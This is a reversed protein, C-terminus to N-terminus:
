GQSICVSRSFIVELGKPHIAPELCSPLGLSGQWEFVGQQPKLENNLLEYPPIVLWNEKLLVQKASAVLCPETFAPSNM